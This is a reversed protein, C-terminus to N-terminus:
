ENHDDLGLRRLRRMVRDKHRKVEATLRPPPLGGLGLVRAAEATSRSGEVCMLWILQRDRIDPFAERVTQFLQSGGVDPLVDFTVTGGVTPPQGTDPDAPLCSEVLWSREFRKSPSAHDNRLDGHAQMTLWGLLSSRSQDYRAPAVLYMSVVEVAADYCADTRKLLPWRANLRKVLPYLLLAAADASATPDGALLRRHVGLAQEQLEARDVAM